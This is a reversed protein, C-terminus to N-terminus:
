QDLKLFGSLDELFVEPFDQVIPIDKLQKGESRDEEKKASIQALFIQSRKKIYEQTKSCSIITLWSERGDSSENGSFILTKNGYPVRVLKEDCIIVDHYKRLWDIDIIVDFSGLEIRMLDINFLHNLFNLTYGRMITNVGVLKGDALE